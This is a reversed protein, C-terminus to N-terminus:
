IVWRKQAINKIQQQIDAIQAELECLRGYDEVVKHQEELNPVPVLFSGLLTAPGVHPVGTGVQLGEIQTRGSESRLYMLLYEPLLTVGRARPNVRLGICSQSVVATDEAIPGVLGAKGVTGKVSIVIDGQALTPMDRGRAKIKIQKTFPEVLLGWGGLEPIGVEM